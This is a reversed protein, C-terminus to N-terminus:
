RVPSYTSFYRLVEQYLFDCATAEDPFRQLGTKRGRESYYVQWSDGAFALCIAENPFGGTLSYLHAPVNEAELRRQVDTRNM